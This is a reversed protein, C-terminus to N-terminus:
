HRYTSFFEAIFGGNRDVRERNMSADATSMRSEDIRMIRENFFAVTRRSTAQGVTCDVDDGKQLRRRRAERVPRYFRRPVDRRELRQSVRV